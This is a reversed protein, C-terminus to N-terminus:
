NLQWSPPASGVKEKEAAANTGDSPSCKEFTLHFGNAALAVARPRLTNRPSVKHFKGVSSFEQM